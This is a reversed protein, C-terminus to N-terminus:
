SCTTFTIFRELLIAAEAFLSAVHLQDQVCHLLEVHLVHLASQLGFVKPEDVDRM